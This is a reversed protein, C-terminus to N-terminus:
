AVQAQPQFEVASQMVVGPAVTQPQEIPAQQEFVIGMRQLAHVVNDEATTIVANREQVTPDAGPQKEPAMNKSM